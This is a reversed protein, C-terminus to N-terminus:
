VNCIINLETKTCLLFMYFTRYIMFFYLVFTTNFVSHTLLGNFTKSYSVLHIHFNISTTRAEGSGVVDSRYQGSCEVM